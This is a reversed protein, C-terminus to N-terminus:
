PADRQFGRQHSAFARPSLGVERRFVRSFHLPDAFGVTAAVAGVTMHSSLLLEKAVDVRRRRIYASLSQHFYEQFLRNLYDPNLWLRVAVQRPTIPESLEAEIIQVANMVHLYGQRLPPTQISNLSELVEDSVFQLFLLFTSQAAVMRGSKTSYQWSKVCSLSEEAKSMQRLRLMDPVFFSREFLSGAQPGQAVLSAWEKLPADVQQMQAADFYFHCHFFGLHDSGKLLFEQGPTLFAIEGANVEWRNASNQVVLQGDTILYLQYETASHVPLTFQAQDDRHLIRTLNLGWHEAALTVVHVQM